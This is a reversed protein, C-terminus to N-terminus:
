ACPTTRGPAATATRTSWSAARWMPDDVMLYDLEHSNRSAELDGFMEGAMLSRVNAPAQRRRPNDTTALRAEVVGLMYFPDFELSM